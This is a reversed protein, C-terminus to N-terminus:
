VMPEPGGRGDKGPRVTGDIVDGAARPLDQM